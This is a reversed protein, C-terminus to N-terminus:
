QKLAAALAAILHPLVKKYDAVVGLRAYSFIPAEPDTNIAVINKASAVGAMHQSAGSIGIALYLDPSVIKGTQGIQWSPPAWGLDVAGRSAGIGAHLLAALKKLEAFGEAGGLGRGGSVIVRADELRVGETKEEVHEVLRTHVQEEDLQVKQHQIEGGTKPEALPSATHARVTLVVTGAVRATMIAKGGYVPRKAVLAGDSWSVELADTFLQSQLRYALRPALDRGNSDAPLLVAAPSTASAALAQLWLEPQYTDLRPEDLIVAEDAGAALVAAAALGRAPGPLLARLKLGAAQALRHGLGLLELTSRTPRSEVADALVYINDM